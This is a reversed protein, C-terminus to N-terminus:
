KNNLYDNYSVENNCLLSCFCILICMILLSSYYDNLNDFKVELYELSVDGAFTETCTLVGPAFIDAGRLIAAGCDADM